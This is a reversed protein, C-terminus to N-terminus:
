NKQMGNKMSKVTFYYKEENFWTQKGLWSMYDKGKASQYLEEISFGKFKGFPIKNDKKNKLYLQRDVECYEDIFGMLQETTVGHNEISLM